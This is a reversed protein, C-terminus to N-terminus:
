HGREQQPRATVVIDDGLRQVDTIPLHHADAM